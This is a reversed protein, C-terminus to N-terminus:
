IGGNEAKRVQAGWSYQSTAKYHKVYGNINEQIQAKTPKWFCNECHSISDLKNLLLVKHKVESESM